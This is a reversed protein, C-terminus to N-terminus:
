QNKWLSTLTEVDTGCRFKIRLPKGNKVKDRLCTMVSEELTIVFEFGEEDADVIQKKNRKGIEDTHKMEVGLATETEVIRKRREQYDLSEKGFIDLRLVDKEAEKVAKERRKRFNDHCSRSRLISRGKLGVKVTVYLYFFIKEFNEEGRLEM